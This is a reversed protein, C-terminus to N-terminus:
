KSFFIRFLFTLFITFSLPLTNIGYRRLVKYQLKLMSIGEQTSIPSVTPHFVTANPLLYLQYGLSIYEASTLIDEFYSKGHSLMVEVHYASDKEYMRVAHLWDVQQPSSPKNILPVISGFRLIQLSKPNSFSFGQLYLYFKTALNFKCARLWNIGQPVFHNKNVSVIPSVVSRPNHILFNLLHESCNSDLILDDDLQFIYPSSCYTLGIARQVVQNAIPSIIHKILHTHSKQIHTIDDVSTSCLIIHRPPLTQNVLSDILLPLKDSGKHSCILADYSSKHM